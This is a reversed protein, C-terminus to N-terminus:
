THMILDKKVHAYKEDYGTIGQIYEQWKKQEKGKDHLLGMILAIDGMGFYGAFRSALKAVGQQHAENSQLGMQNNIHSIIM